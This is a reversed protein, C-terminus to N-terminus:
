TGDIEIDFNLLSKAWHIQTRVCFLLLLSPNVKMNGVWIGKFTVCLLSTSRHLDQCITKDVDCLNSNNKQLAEETSFFFFSWWIAMLCTKLPNEKYIISMSLDPGYPLCINNTRSSILFCAICAISFLCSFKPKLDKTWPRAKIERLPNHVLIHLGFM